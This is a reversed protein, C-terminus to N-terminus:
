ARGRIVVTECGPCLYAGPLVDYTWVFNNRFPLVKQGPGARAFGLFRFLGRAPEGAPSFIVRSLRTRHLRLEGPRMEAGCSPCCVVPPRQGPPAGGEAAPGAAEPAVGALDYGCDCRAAFDQNVLKCRPCVKPM